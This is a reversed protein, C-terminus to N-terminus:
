IENETKKGAGLYAMLQGLVTWFMVANPSFHYFMISSFMAACALPFLIALQLAVFYKEDKKEKRYKVIVFVLIYGVFTVASIIGFIGNAIMINLIENDLTIMVAYDNNVIYTDPMNEQAYETFGCYSLGFIMNKGSHTFVEIGSKWVDFRRNSIDESLDYGRDIINHEPSEHNFNGTQSNVYSIIINVPKRIQRIGAFCCVAIGAAVAVSMLMTLAKKWRFTKLLIAFVYTAVGVSLVVTGTRSDSFVIYLLHVCVNLIILIREWIKKRNRFVYILFLITIACSVAGHNPNLFIGWLRGWRFGINYTYNGGPVDYTKSVGAFYLIFSVVTFLTTYATFATAAIRLTKKCDEKKRSKGTTFLVLFYFAWYICFIVNSKFSHNRNLITSIGASGVMMLSFITIPVKFYKRFNLVRYLLIVASLLFSGWMFPKIIPRGYTLGCCSLIAYIMFVVTFLNQIFEMRKESIAFKNKM